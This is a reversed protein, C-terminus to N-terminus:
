PHKAIPNPGQQCGYKPRRCGPTIDSSSKRRPQCGYKRRWCGATIRGSTRVGPNASPALHIPVSRVKPAVRTQRVSIVQAALVIVAIALALAVLAAALRSRRRTGRWQTSM